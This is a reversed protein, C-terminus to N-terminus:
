HVEKFFIHDFLVSISIVGLIIMIYALTSLSFLKFIPNSSKQDHQIPVFKILVLYKIFRSMTSLDGTNKDRGATPEIQIMKTNNKAQKIIFLPKLYVLGWYWNISVRFLHYQFVIQKIYVPTM